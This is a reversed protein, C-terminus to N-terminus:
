HERQGQLKRGAEEWAAKMECGCGSEEGEEGMCGLWSGCRDEGCPSNENGSKGDNRGM